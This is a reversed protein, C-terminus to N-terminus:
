LYWHGHTTKMNAKVLSASKPRESTKLKRQTSLQLYHFILKTENKQVNISNEWCFKSLLSSHEQNKKDFDTLQLHLPHYSNHARVQTGNTQRTKTKALMM